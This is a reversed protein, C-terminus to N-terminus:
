SHLLHYLIGATEFTSLPTSVLCVGEEIAKAIVPEEPRLNKPFVVAPVGALSAVAIVNLHRMITIWVQNNLVNGMVDSLLDSVYGGGISLNAIDVDPTLNTAQIAGLYQSLSISM